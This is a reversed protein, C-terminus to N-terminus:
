RTDTDILLLTHILDFVLLFGGQITIGIGTGQWFRDEKGKTNSLWMGGIIYVIDLGSNVALIRLLNKREKLQTEQAHADSEAAKERSSRLGFWGLLADVLGWGAFQSGVGGWFRSGWMMFVGGLGSSLGGWQVLRKGLMAQFQFIDTKTRMKM